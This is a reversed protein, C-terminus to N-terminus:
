IFIDSFQNMVQKEQLFSNDKCLILQMEAYSFIQIKINHYLVLNFVDDHQNSLKSLTILKSRLICVSVQSLIFPKYEAILM